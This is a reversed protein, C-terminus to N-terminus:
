FLYKLYDLVDLKLRPAVLRNIYMGVVIIKETPFLSKDPPFYLGRGGLGELNNGILVSYKLYNLNKM